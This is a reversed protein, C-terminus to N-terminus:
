FYTRNSRKYLYFGVIFVIIGLFVFVLNKSPSFVSSIRVNKTNGQDYLIEVDDGNELNINPLEIKAKVFKGTNDKFLIDAFKKPTYSSFRQHNYTLESRTNSVTGTTSKASNLFFIDSIFHLSGLITLAFGLVICFLSLKKM